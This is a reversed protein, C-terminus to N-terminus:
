RKWKKIKSVLKYQNFYILIAMIKKLRIIYPNKLVNGMKKHFLKKLQRYEEKYESFNSSEKVKQLLTMVTLLYYAESEKILKPYNQKIFLDIEQAFYIADFHKKNFKQNLISGNRILYHYGPNSIHVIKEAKDFLKYTTGMDEYYKGFPYRINEFLSLRYMKGWASTDIDDLLLMRGLVQESNECFALGNNQVVAKDETEVFKACCAIDADYATIAEYLNEVMTEEIYDDSDVFVIYEGTAREIGTNRADSLGGNEKHIVIIRKDMKGYADCIEGCKDLSGDDVLFIELNKYTQKLISDICKKIYAEVNYVPVVVSIKM